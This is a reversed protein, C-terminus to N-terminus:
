RQLINIKLFDVKGDINDSDMLNHSHDAPGSTLDQALHRALLEDLDSGYTNRSAASTQINNPKKHLQALEHRQANSKKRLNKDPNTNKPPQAPNHQRRHMPQRPAPKRRWAGAEVAEAMPAPRSRQIARDALDRSHHAPILTPAIESNLIRSMEDMAFNNYLEDPLLIDPDYDADPRNTSKPANQKREPYTCGSSSHKEFDKIMIYQQCLPCHETRTGCYKEHDTLDDRPM